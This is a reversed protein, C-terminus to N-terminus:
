AEVKRLRVNFVFRFQKFDNSPLQQPVSQSCLVSYYGTMTLEQTYHLLDIATGRATDYDTNRVLVQVASEYDSNTGGDLFPLPAPGGYDVVFVANVAKYANGPSAQANVVHEPRDFINTNLTWSYQTAYKAALATAAGTTATM